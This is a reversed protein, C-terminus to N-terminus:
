PAKQKGSQFKVPKKLTEVLNWLPSFATCNAKWFEKQELIRRQTKFRKLNKEWSGFQCTKPFPESESSWIQLESLLCNKSFFSSDNGSRSASERGLLKRRSKCTWQAPSRFRRPSAKSDSLPDQRVLKNHLKCKSSWFIGLQSNLWWAKVPLLGCHIAYDLATSPQLDCTEKKISVGAFTNQKSTARLTLLESWTRLSFFIMFKM